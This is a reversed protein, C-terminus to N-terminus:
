LKVHEGSPSPVRIVTPQGPSIWILRSRAFTSLSTLGRGAPCGTDTSTADCVGASIAVTAGRIIVIQRAPRDTLQTQYRQVLPSAAGIPLRLGNSTGARLIPDALGVGAELV